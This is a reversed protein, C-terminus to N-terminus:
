SCRKKLLQKGKDLEARIIKMELKLHKRKSTSEEEALRKEFKRQKKKLEDILEVLSECYEDEQDVGDKHLGALKKLIKKLGMIGIGRHNESVNAHYM